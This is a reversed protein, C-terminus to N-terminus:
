HKHEGFIGGEEEDDDGNIFSVQQSVIAIRSALGAHELAEMVALDPTGEGRSQRIFENATQVDGIVNYSAWAIPVIVLTGISQEEQPNDEETM